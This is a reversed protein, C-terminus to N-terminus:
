EESIAKLLKMLSEANVWSFDDMAIITKYMRKKEKPLRRSIEREHVPVMQENWWYYYKRILPLPLGESPTLEVTTYSLQDGLDINTIVMDNRLITMYADMDILTICFLRNEGVSDIERALMNDIKVFHHSGIDVSQVTAMKAEMTADGRKFLLAGNKLFVNAFATKVEKGNAMHVVAPKYERYLTLNMTYDQAAIKPIGLSIVFLVSLFIRRGM